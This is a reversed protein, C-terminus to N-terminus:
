LPIKGIQNYVWNVLYSNSQIWIDYDTKNMYLIQHTIYNGLEDFLGIMIKASKLYDVYIDLICFSGGVYLFKQYDKYLHLLQTKAWEEVYSDDGEWKKYDNENMLIEFENLNGGNGDLYNIKFIANKNLNIKICEISIKSMVLYPQELVYPYNLSVKSM